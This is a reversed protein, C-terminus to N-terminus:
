RTTTHAAREVLATFQAAHRTIGGLHGADPFEITQAGARTAMWREEAPDIM